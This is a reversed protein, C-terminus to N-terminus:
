FFGLAYCWGQEPTPIPGDDTLLYVEQLDRMSPYPKGDMEVYNPRVWFKKVDGVWTSNSSAGTISDKISVIRGGKKTFHNIKRM